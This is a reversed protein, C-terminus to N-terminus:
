LRKLQLEFELELALAEIELTSLSTDGGTNSQMFRIAHANADEIHRYNINELIFDGNHIQFNYDVGQTYIQIKHSGSRYEAFFDEDSPDFYYIHWDGPLELILQFDGLAHSLTKVIWTEDGKITIPFERSTTVVEQGCVKEPHLNFWTNFTCLETFSLPENSYDRQGAYVEVLGKEDRDAPYVGNRMLATHFDKADVKSLVDRFMDLRARLYKPSQTDM